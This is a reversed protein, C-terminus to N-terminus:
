NLMLYFEQMKIILLKYIYNENGLRKMQFYPCSWIHVHNKFDHLFM